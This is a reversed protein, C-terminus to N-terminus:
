LNGKHNRRQGQPNYIIANNLKWNKCIKRNNVEVKTYKNDCFM